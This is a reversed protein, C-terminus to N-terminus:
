ARYICFRVKSYPQFKDRQNCRHHDAKDPLLTEGHVTSVPAVNFTGRIAGTIINKYKTRVFAAGKGPKVHQFEIVQCPQGDCVFTVGNRFDSAEM